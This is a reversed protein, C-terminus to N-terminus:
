GEAAATGDVTGGCAPAPVQQPAAALRPLLVQWLQAVREAALWDRERAGLAELGVLAAVIVVGASEASVDDTLEGASQAQALLDEVRARWWQRLGDGSGHAPDGSLRFGATVVVDATLAAALAYSATVLSQLLSSGASRCDAVLKELTDVAADTVEQALVKKTPFHFHLAGTSVGARRSIVPLSAVAYGDAAFVEAAARVLAQRTREARIQKVM